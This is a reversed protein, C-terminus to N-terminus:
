SHQIPCPRGNDDIVVFTFVGATVHRRDNHREYDVAWVKVDVAISTRGMKQVECYVCITDGVHVPEKFVMKDIAVTVSKQRAIKRVLMNAALDMQSVIWGGFIDGNANTDAPMALTRLMLEGKPQTTDTM